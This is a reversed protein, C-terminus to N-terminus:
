EIDHYDLDHGSWYPQLLQLQVTRHLDVIGELVLVWFLCGKWKLPSSHVLLFDLFVQFLLCIQGQSVSHLLAFALLTKGLSRVPWLLCGSRVVCSFVRCMYMVLHGVGFDSQKYRQLWLHLLEICDAFVLGPASQPESWSSRRVLNLSFDFVTSVVM